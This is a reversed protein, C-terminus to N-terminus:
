GCGVAERMTGAALLEAEDWDLYCENEPWRFMSGPVGCPHQHPHVYDASLKMAPLHGDCSAMGPADGDGDLAVGHWVADHSCAIAGPYPEYGCTWHQWEERPKGLFPKV